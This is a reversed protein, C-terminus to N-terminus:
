GASPATNWHRTTGRQPIARKEGVAEKQDRHARELPGAFQIVCVELPKRVTVRLLTMDPGTLM